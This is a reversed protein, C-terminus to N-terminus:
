SSFIALAVSLVSGALIIWGMKKHKMASEGKTNLRATHPSYKFGDDV